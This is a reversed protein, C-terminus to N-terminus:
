YNLTCITKLLESSLQKFFMCIEYELDELTQYVKNRITKSKIYQWFREVPNLEPSYPPLYMIEINDPIILSKSKHWKAGDMVMIANKGNLWKSIEDLYVNMTQTNLKEAILSFDEGTVVNVAGYIYFNEFGLKV